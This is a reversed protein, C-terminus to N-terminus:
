VGSSRSPVVVVPLPKLVLTFISSDVGIVHRSADDTAIRIRDGYRSLRKLMEELLPLERSDFEEIQLLLSSKTDRLMTELQRGARGFFDRDLRGTISLRIESLSDDEQSLAVKLKGLRVHRELAATFRSLHNRALGREHDTELVFHREIYDRTSLEHIWDMFVQAILRPRSVPLSRMFHYLGSVGGQSLIHRVLKVVAAVTERQSSSNGALPESLYRNKNRIRKSIAPYQQLRHYLHKYGKILQDYTMGKPVVNTALKSNDSSIRGPVLRGEDQLRQYLPTQEMAHLLGIM